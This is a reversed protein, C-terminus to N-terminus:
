DGFEQWEKVGGSLALVWELGTSLCVVVDGAQYDSLADSLCENPDCSVVGRFHMVNDFKRLEDSLYGQTVVKNGDSPADTVLALSLYTSPIDTYVAQELSAVKDSLGDVSLDVGAKWKNTFSSVQGSLEGVSLWIRLDEASLASLGGDVESKWTNTFSSVKDSLGQVYGSLGDLSLNVENQWDKFTGVYASLDGVYGSLRGVEGSLGYVADDERRIELRADGDTFDYFMARIQDVASLDPEAQRKTIVTGCFGSIGGLQTQDLIANVLVNYGGFRILVNRGQNFAEVVEGIKGNSPAAQDRFENRFGFDTIDFFAPSLKDM